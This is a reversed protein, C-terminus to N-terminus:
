WGPPWPSPRGPVRGAAFHNGPRVANRCAGYPSRDGALGTAFQDLNTKGVLIAGADLLRAVVPASRRRCLRLGPCGATTPRGAVDINDKVAFPVGYLPLRGRGARRKQVTAAQALVEEATATSGSRPIAFLRSHTWSRRRPCRSSCVEGAHYPAPLTAMDLSALSPGPMLRERVLSRAFSLSRPLSYRDARGMGIADHLRQCLAGQDPVARLPLNYCNIHYITGALITPVIRGISLPCIISPIPARGSATGQM